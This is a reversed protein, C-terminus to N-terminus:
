PKGICCYGAWSSIPKSLQIFKRQTLALVAAPSLGQTYYHYFSTMFEVSAQDQVPWSSGVVTKAGAALCTTPLGVHEDGSYTRTFLSSCGSLTVMEPLPALDRLQDQYIDTGWLALGSLRGSISDSFFHSALHLFAFNTLGKHSEIRTQRVLNQWTANEEELILGGEQLILSFAAIEDKVFPLDPHKGFFTSVGVVLGKQRSPINAKKAEQWLATLSHLSPVIVPTCSEVLTSKDSDIQLANWPLGHLSSHPSIILTTEPTLLPLVEAPILFHGLHRLDDPEPTARGQQSAKCTEFALQERSSATVQYTFCQASTIASIILQSGTSYYDLALWNNGLKLRCTDRFLTLDFSSASYNQKGNSSRRELRANIEDYQKSKEALQQRIQQNQLRSKLSYQTAAAPVRMQNQLWNIENVLEHLEHLKKSNIKLPEDSFQQVLSAAKDAEIFDLTDLPSRCDISFPIARAFMEAFGGAYVGSLAAQWFNSRIKGLSYISERYKNLAETFSGRKEALGALGACARWDIEDFSANSLKLAELYNEGAEVPCDIATYYAGFALHCSAAELTMGMSSFLKLSFQLHELAEDFYHARVSMEGILRHALAAQPRLHYQLSRELSQQLCELSKKPDNMEFYIRAKLNSTTTLSANQQNIQYFREAQQLHDLSLRFERLYFWVSAINLECDALTLTNEFPNLAEKAKELTLLADQYRGAISYAKGLNATDIWTNLSKGTQKHLVAAKRFLAISAEANGKSLNFLGHTTYNDALLGTTRNRHFVQGAEIFSGEAKELQGDQLVAAGLFTLCIGHWLELDSELFLTDAQEFFAITKTLNTTGFLSNLGYQYYSKAILATSHDKSFVELAADLKQVAREFQNQSRLLSSQVLWCQAQGSPDNQEEFYAESQAISTQADTFRRLYIQNTALSLRCYPSFRKLSSNELVPLINSLTKVAQTQKDNAWSLEHQQWDCAAMWAVENLEAFGLRARRFLAPVLLPRAWHNAARAQYWASLSRLRLPASQQNAALSALHTIEYGFHPSTYAQKEATEGLAELLAEDLPPLSAITTSLDLQDSKQKLLLEALKLYENVPM